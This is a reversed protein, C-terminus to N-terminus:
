GLGVAKAGGAISAGTAAGGLAANILQRTGDWEPRAVSNIRSQYNAQQQKFSENRQANERAVNASIMSNAVLGQRAMDQLIAPSNQIAGSAGISVKARSQLKQTQLANAIKEQAAKEAEQAQNLRLQRDANIKADQSAEINAMYAGVQADHADAAMGMNNIASLAGIGIAATVDCM